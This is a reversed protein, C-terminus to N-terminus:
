SSQQQAPSVIAALSRILSCNHRASIVIQAARPDMLLIKTEPMSTTTLAPMGYMAWERLGLAELVMLGTGSARETRALTAAMSPHMLWAARTFDGNADGLAEVMAILELHTPTVDGFTVSGSAQELLGLPQGDRGTGQILGHEVVEAVSRRMEAIVAAQLDGQTGSRLRRSYTIQAGAHKASVDVSSLTLGADALSDGEEIWGGGNGRWRPLSGEQADDIQIVEVGARELVTV